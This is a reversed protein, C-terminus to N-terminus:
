LAPWSALAASVPTESDNPNPDGGDLTLEGALEGNMFRLRATLRRDSWNSLDLESGADYSGRLAAPDM